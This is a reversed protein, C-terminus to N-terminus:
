GNKVAEGPVFEEYSSLCNYFLHTSDNDKNKRMEAGLERKQSFLKRFHRYIAKSHCPPGFSGITPHTQCFIILEVDYCGVSMEPRTCALYTPVDASESGTLTDM